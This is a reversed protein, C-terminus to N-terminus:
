APARHPEQILQIALIALVIRCSHSKACESHSISRELGYDLALLQAMCGASQYVKGPNCLTCRIPAIPKQSEQILVAHRPASFESRRTKKRLEARWIALRPMPIRSEPQPCSLSTGRQHLNYKLTYYKQTYYECAYQAGYRATRATPLM